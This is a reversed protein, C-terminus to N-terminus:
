WIPMTKTAITMQFVILGQGSSHHVILNKMVDDTMGAMTPSIEVTQNIIPPM